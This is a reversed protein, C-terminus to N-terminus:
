AMQKRRQRYILLGLLVLLASGPSGAQGCGGGGSGKVPTDSDNDAITDSDTKDDDNLDSDADGDLTGDAEGEVAEKDGDAQTEREIDLEISEADGDLTEENDGDPKTEADSDRETEFDADTTDADSTDSDLDGDTGGIEEIRLTFTDGLGGLKVVQLTFNSSRALLDEILEGQGEGKDNTAASCAEPNGMLATCDFWVALAVDLGSEPTALIRYHHGLEVKVKYFLDPGSLAESAPSICAGPIPLQAGASAFSGNADQALSIEPARLCDDSTERPECASDLCILGDGCPTGSELPEGHCTGQM